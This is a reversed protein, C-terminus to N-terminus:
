CHFVEGFNLWPSDLQLLCGYALFAAAPYVRCLVIERKFRVPADLSFRVFVCVTAQLAHLLPCGLM